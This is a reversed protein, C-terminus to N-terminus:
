WCFCAFIDGFHDISTLNGRRLVVLAALVLVVDIIQVQGTDIVFTGDNM